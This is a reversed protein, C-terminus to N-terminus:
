IHNPFTGVLKIQKIFRFDKFNLTMLELDYIMATSAVIADIIKINHSLNYKEIIQKALSIIEHNTNLIKFDTIEKKIFALDNKNMAGQYLEM